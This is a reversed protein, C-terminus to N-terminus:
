PMTLPQNVIEDLEVSSLLEAWRDPLRRDSPNMTQLTALQDVADFWYGNQTYLSVQDSESVLALVSSLGQSPPQYEVWGEIQLDGVENAPNCFAAVQWRYRDGAELVPLDATEPVEFSVIGADSSVDLRTTYFPSEVGNADVQALTLEVFEAQNLPMYWYFQPYPEATLGINETPMLAILNAPNGFACGRTGASERRGPAGLGAPPVYPEALAVTGSALVLAWPLLKVMSPCLVDFLKMLRVLLSQFCFLAGSIQVISAVELKGILFGYFIVSSNLNLSQQLTCAITHSRCDAVASHRVRRHGWGRTLLHLLRRCRDGFTTLISLANVM